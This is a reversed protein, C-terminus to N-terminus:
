IRRRGSSRSFRGRGQSPPDAAPDVAPAPSPSPPTTPEAPPPPPPNTPAPVVLDRDSQRISEATADEADKAATVKTFGVVAESGFYSIVVAMVITRFDDMLGRAYSRDVVEEFRPFTLVFTLMVLFTLLFSSAIAIRARRSAVYFGGYSVLAIVVLVIGVVPQWPVAGSELWGIAHSVWLTVYGLVGVSVCVIITWWIPASNARARMKTM